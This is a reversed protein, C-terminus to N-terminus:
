MEIKLGLSAQHWDHHMFVPALDYNAYISWWSGGIEATLGYNFRHQNWNGKVVSHANHGNDDYELKQKSVLRGKGYVGVALRLHNDWRRPLDVEVSLPVKFWISRLKSDEMNYPSTEFRITDNVIAHIQNNKPKLTNWVFSGGYRLYVKHKIVPAKWQLGLEFFRSEGIKYPSQDISEPKQGTIVNNIGIAMILDRGINDHKSKEIRKKKRKQKVVRITYSFDKDGDKIIVKGVVKKNKAFSKLEATKKYVIYDLEEAYKEALKKKAADAQEKTLEKNEVQKNLKDIAMQLATNKAKVISDIEQTLKQLDKDFTDKQAYINGAFVLILLLLIRKM